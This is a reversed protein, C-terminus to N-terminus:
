STFEGASLRAIITDGHYRAGVGSSRSRWEGDGPVGEIVTRARILAEDRPITVSAEALAGAWEPWVWVIQEIPGCQRLLDALYGQGITTGIAVEHWDLERPDRGAQELLTEAVALHERCASLCGCFIPSPHSLVLGMLEIPLSEVGLWISKATV